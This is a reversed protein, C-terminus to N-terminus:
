DENNNGLYPLGVMACGYQALGEIIGNFLAILIEQATMATTKLISLINM